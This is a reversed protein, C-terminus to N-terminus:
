SPRRLTAIGDLMDIAGIHTLAQLAMRAHAVAADRGMKTTQLYAKTLEEQNISRKLLMHAAIQLFASFGKFPNDGAQLREVAHLNAKDIREVLERVKKPLSLGPQADDPKREKVVYAEPIKLRERLTKLNLAHVPACLERFVCSSCVPHEEQYALASGFCGPAFSPITTM